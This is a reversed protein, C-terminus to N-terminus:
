DVIIVDNKGSLRQFMAKHRSEKDRGENIERCWGALGVARENRVTRAFGEPDRHGQASFRNPFLVKEGLDNSYQGSEWDCGGDQPLVEGCQYAPHLLCASLDGRFNGFRLRVTFVARMVSDWEINLANHHQRQQWYVVSLSRHPDCKPSATLLGVKHVAPLMRRVSSELGLVGVIAMWMTLVWMRALSDHCRLLARFVQFEVRLLLPIRPYGTPATNWQGFLDSFVVSVDEGTAVGRSLICEQIQNESLGSVDFGKEPSVGQVLSKFYYVLAAKHKKVTHPAHFEVYEDTRDPHIIDFGPRGDM